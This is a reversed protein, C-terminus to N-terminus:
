LGEITPGTTKRQSSVRKPKDAKTARQERVSELIGQRRRYAGKTRERRVEITALNFPKILDELKM